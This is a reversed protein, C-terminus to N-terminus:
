KDKTKDSGKFAKITASVPFSIFQFFGSLSSLGQFPQKITSILEERVVSEHVEGEEKVMTLRHIAYLGFLFAFLFFFDWHHFNIPRLVLKTTPSVWTIFLSLDFMAFYEAFHGGLIPAIGAGLSNIITSAALYSTAKGQPALKLGINATALTVGSQGIGMMVAIVFLLPYTLVHKSPDQTLTWLLISFIYLPGSVGLVSKNSFKDTFRGWVRFFMVNFIQLIINFLVVFFMSMNLQKLMYVTFFPTALNIAFSWSGLFMLLRKFNFDKFPMNLTKWFDTKVPQMVPEPIRAIYYLSLVGSLFAILFLLSYGDVVANPYAKKWWAIYTGALFSVVLGFATTLRMRNSFFGGLKDRPVIDRMWSNWSCGSMGEFGSYIFLGLLLVALGAKHPLFFPSLAILLWPLRSLLSAYFCIFRRNQIKNVLYISPIQTLQLLAPIAALLGIVINSAGLELAFAVLFVGSTLTAMAQSAVGDKVIAKLGQEVETEALKEKTKFAFM